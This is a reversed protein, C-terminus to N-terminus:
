GSYYQVGTPVRTLFSGRIMSEGGFLFGRAYTSNLGQEVETYQIIGQYGRGLIISSAMRSSYSYHADRIVRISIGKVLRPAEGEGM